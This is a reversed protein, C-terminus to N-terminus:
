MILLTDRLQVAPPPSLGAQRAVAQHGGAEEARDVFPEPGRPLRRDQRADEDGHHPGEQREPDEGVQDVDAREEGEDDDARGHQDHALGVRIRVAREPGREDRQVRQGPLNASQVYVVDTDEACADDGRARSSLVVSACALVSAADSAASSRM